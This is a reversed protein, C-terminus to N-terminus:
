EPVTQRRIEAPTFLTNIGGAVDITAASEGSTGEVTEVSLKVTYRGPHTFAHTAREGPVTVGDGFDWAYRVIGQQDGGAGASVSVTAGTEASHPVVAQVAVPPPRQTSRIKFMAVSHPELHLSLVGASRVPVAKHTFVDAVTYGRSDLGLERLTITRDRHQDTWNFVTLISQRGTEKLYFVSPQEDVADYSMLDLPVSSRGLLAMDILDKNEILALRDPEAALRPLDDGIEFMGGTVAALSISAKAEDLTLPTTGGHWTQEKLVQRSVCFADPDSVFFNRNMYYRAAVGTGADKTAGFTHGTDQSIRGTDVIGVPNLMPSGDKDLLVDDGVADRIIELGIRQAEVATTNPRHYHGEVAADDMFDLKIYHIGWQDKLTRYTQKLYNQAGPHTADLVYLQDNHETVFGLKLPAGKTNAVLWEPHRQFVWSRESVQFPATWVGPILGEAVVKRELSELGHPFLTGNPTTYEGRAYQYGEDIHFFNYGYQKLHQSMWLANSWATGENLGFYYATWSWWGMFSPTSVRAHHLKSIWAGYQELQAHYNRGIGLLLPESHFSEGPGIPLSLEVVDQPQANALSYTRQFETMGANEVAYSAVKAGDGVGSVGLHFFTLLRDSTLAGLFFSMGSERSYILQSGVALHEGDTAQGLDRIALQPHDESFSDSLIRFASEKMGLHIGDESKMSRVAQVHMAHGTANKVELELIVFPLGNLLKLRCILDPASTKGSSTLEWIHAAGLSTVGTSETVSHRPYDTSNFWKGDVKAAVSSRVVDTGAYTLVYMGRDDAKVGLETAGNAANPRAALLAVPGLVLSLKAAVTVARFLRRLMVAIFRM